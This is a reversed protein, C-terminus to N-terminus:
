VKHCNNLLFFLRQWPLSHLYVGIDERSLKKGNNRLNALYYGHLSYLHPHYLRDIDSIMIIKRVHLDIYQSYLKHVAIYLYIYCVDFYGKDEPYYELYKNILNQQYLQSFRMSPNNSNGRLQRIMKYKDSRFRWRNGCSDKFVVGQFQWDKESFLIDIYENISGTSPTKITYTELREETLIVIGDQYITGSMINYVKNETKSVIRHDSHQVLYSKFNSIESGTSAKINYTSYDNTNYTDTYSEHFLEKLAKNSYFKGTANFRSRSTICTDNDITRYCNIMFGDLQEECFIDSAIEEFSKYAFEVASAKPPAICIPRNKITDWVVSRFWRVHELGFNSVLKDYRIICFGNDSVDTIKLIGGDPGELFCKLEDWSSYKDILKKYIDLIYNIM